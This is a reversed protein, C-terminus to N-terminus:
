EWVSTTILNDLFYIRLPPAVILYRLLLFFFGRCVFVAFLLYNIASTYAKERLCNLEGERRERETEGFFRNM